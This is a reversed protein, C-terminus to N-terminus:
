CQEDHPIRTTTTPTTTAYRPYPHHRLLACDPHCQYIKEAVEENAWVMFEEVMSHVEMSEKVVVVVNTADVSGVSM